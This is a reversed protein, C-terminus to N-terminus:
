GERSLEEEFTGILQKRHSDNSGGTLFVKFINKNTYEDYVCDVEIGKDWSRIHAWIGSDKSGCRTGNTRAKGSVTGYFHAM